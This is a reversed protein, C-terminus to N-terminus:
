RGPSGGVATDWGANRDPDAQADVPLEATLEFWGDARAAATLTGGLALVRTAMNRLGSGGETAGAAVRPTEGADIGDNTLTLRVRDHDLLTEIVCHRAKSHRLVNTIGERLVTALVADAGGAPLDAAARVRTDIGVASLLSEAATIERTLSMHLYSSAVSRVDALAQRSTHLIEVIEAEARAPHLRVLRYALECKLTITSLSSGLLDHLDRAFRLRERTIAFRALEERAEQVERMLEALRSLGYVVLGTLATATVNYALEGGGFGVAYQIVGTSVVVTGFCVWALVSKLVLLCSAALFGPMGLWAAGFLTFPLYTLLAQAALTRERRGALIPVRSPFSHGLQLAFLLLMLALCLVLAGAGHEDRLVYTLAVLFFGLIVIATITVATRPALETHPAPRHGPGIEPERAPTAHM